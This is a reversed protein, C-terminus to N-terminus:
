TRGASNEARMSFRSAPDEASITISFREAHLEDQRLRYPRTAATSRCNPSTREGYFYHYVTVPDRASWNSPRRWDLRVRGSDLRTQTFDRVPGPVTSSLAPRLVNVVSVADGAGIRNVARVEYSFVSGPLHDGYAWNPSVGASVWEHWPVVGEVSAPRWRAEYRLLEAGRM